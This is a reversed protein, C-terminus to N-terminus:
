DGDAPYKKDVKQTEVLWTLEKLNNDFKWLKEPVGYCGETMYTCGCLVLVTDDPYKKILNFVHYALAADKM